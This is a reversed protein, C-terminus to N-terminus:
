RRVSLLIVQTGTVPTYPSLSGASVSGLSGIGVGKPNLHQPPVLFLPEQPCASLSWPVPSVHCPSRCRPSLPFPSLPQSSEDDTQHEEGATPVHGLLM